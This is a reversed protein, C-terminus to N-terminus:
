VCNFNKIDHEHSVTKDHKHNDSYTELYNVEDTEDDYWVFTRVDALDWEEKTPDITYTDDIKVISCSLLIMKTQISSHILAMSLALWLYQKLNLKNEFM